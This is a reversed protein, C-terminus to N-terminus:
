RESANSVSPLFIRYHVNELVGHLAHRFSMQHHSPRGAASDDDWDPLHSFGAGLIVFLALKLTLQVVNDVSVQREGRKSMRDEWDEFCLGLTKM